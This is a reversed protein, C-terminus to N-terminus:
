VRFLSLPAVREGPPRGHRCSVSCLLLHRHPPPVSLFWGGLGCRPPEGLRPAGPHANVTTRKAAADATRAPIVILVRFGFGVGSAARGRQAGPHPGGEPGIGRYFELNQPGAAALGRWKRRKERSFHKRPGKPRDNEDFKRSFIAEHSM